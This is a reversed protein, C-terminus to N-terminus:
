DELDIYIRITSVTSIGKEYDIYLMEGDIRDSVPQTMAEDFYAGAYTMGVSLNPFDKMDYAEKRDNWSPARVVLANKTEALSFGNGDEVYFEYRFLPIWAAYLTLEGDTLMDETVVDRDFDWKNGYVYAPERGSEAAPVGYIDLVNGNADVRPERSAYWGAQLYYNRDALAVEDGDVMSLAFANKGRLPDDPALLAIGSKGDAATIADNMSYVEVITTNLTDNVAAGSADFRVRVTYGDKAFSDYFSGTGCATLSVTLVTLLVAIWQKMKNKRM